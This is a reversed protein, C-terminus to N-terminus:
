HLGCEVSPSKLANTHLSLDGRHNPEVWAVSVHARYARWRYETRNRHVYLALTVYHPRYDLRRALLSSTLLGPDDLRWSLEWLPGFNEFFGAKWRHESDIGDLRFKEICDASCCWRCQMVIRALESHLWHVTTNYSKRQCLELCCCRLTCKHSRHDCMSSPEANTSQVYPPFYAM